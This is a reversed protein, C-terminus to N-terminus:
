KLAEFKLEGWCCCGSGDSLAPWPWHKVYERGNDAEYREEHEGFLDRIRECVDEIGEDSFFPPHGHNDLNWSSDGLLVYFDPRTDMPEFWIPKLGDGFSGIFRPSIKYRQGWLRGLRTSFCYARCYAELLTRHEIM